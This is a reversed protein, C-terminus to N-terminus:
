EGLLLKIYEEALDAAIKTDSASSVADVSVKEEWKKIKTTHLLINKSGSNKDLWEVVWPRVKSNVGSNTIFVYDYDSAKFNKLNKKHDEVLTVELSRKELQIKMEEMLAKKFKTNEMALLVKKGSEQTAAPFLVGLFIIVFLIKKVM